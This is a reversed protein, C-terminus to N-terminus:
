RPLNNITKIKTTFFNDDDDSTLRYHPTGSWSAPHDSVSCDEWTDNQVHKGILNWWKYIREKSSTPNLYDNNLDALEDCYGIFKSWFEPDGLIKKALPSSGWQLPSLTCADMNGYCTGLTNDLDYPIYRMKGDGDNDFYMYYNNGNGWWGDWNGIAYDCAMAKLLLDMDIAEEAWTKFDNGKLTTIKTIFDMLQDKAEELKKKKGKFDYTYSESESPDLTVNEIGMAWRAAEKFNAPIGSGWSGKWMFGSTGAFDGNATHDAIYQDDYCEFMESVGLYVPADEEVIKLYVMCYSSKATTYVGFRRMLDYGYVEHVYTPDGKAWRLNFRDTGSLLNEEGKNFKQFRFGFHIHHYDGNVQHEEGFSGEPRVRSTNGRLRLGIDELRDVRGYKSFYFNAHVCDENQSNLDYNHLLTNWEETTIEITITPLADLDFIYDVTGYEPANAPAAKSTTLNGNNDVNLTWKTGNPSQLALSEATKAHYAYPVAGLQMVNLTEYTGNVNREVKLYMKDNSWNIKDWEGGAVTGEGFIAHAVGYANSTVNQTEVYKAEGNVDDAMLSLRLSAATNPQLIGSGDALSISFNIGRAGATIALAVLM